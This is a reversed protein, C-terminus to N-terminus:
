GTDASRELNAIAQTLSSRLTHVQATTLGTLLQQDLATALPRAADLCDNGEATLNTHVIRGHTPHATRSILGNRELTQLMTHMTQPTVFCARALEANSATDMRELALLAAYQSTTLGVSALEADMRARVTHQARKLLYGIEPALVDDATM